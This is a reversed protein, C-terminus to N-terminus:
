IQLLQGHVMLWIITKAGVLWVLHEWFQVTMKYFLRYVGHLGKTLYKLDYWYDGMYTKKKSMEKVYFSIEGQLCLNLQKKREYQSFLWLPSCESLHM